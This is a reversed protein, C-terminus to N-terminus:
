LWQIHQGWSLCCPHRGCCRDGCCRRHKVYKGALHAMFVDDSKEPSVTLAPSCIRWDEDLPKIGTDMVYRPGIRCGVICFYLGNAREVLSPDPRPFDAVIEYFSM